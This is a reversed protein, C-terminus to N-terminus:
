LYREKIINCHHIEHGCVVFGTARVSMESANAMGVRKLQNKNFSKFLSITASRVVMYDGLLITLTRNSAQANVAFTNEDFGMLNAKDSRAFYLARYAFVRETDMIHQLIDKPTWKGEAYRYDLKEEPIAKFFSQIYEMGQALAENLSSDEVLDVYKKYFANYESPTMESSKM